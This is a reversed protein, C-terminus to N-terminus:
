PADGKVKALASRILDCLGKTTSPADGALAQWQNASDATWAEGSHFLLVAELCRAMDPASVILAANAEVTERSQCKGNIKNRAYSFWCVGSLEQEVLESESYIGMPGFAKTACRRWPGETHKSM